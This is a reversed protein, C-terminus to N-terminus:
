GSCPEPRICMTWQQAVALVFWYTGGVVDDNNAAQSCNTGYTQHSRKHEGTATHQTGHQNSGQWRLGIDGQHSALAGPGQATLEVVNGDEM